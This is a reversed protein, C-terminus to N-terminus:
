MEADSDSHNSEKEHDTLHSHIPTDSESQMSYGSYESDTMISYQEMIREATTHHFSETILASRILRSKKILKNLELDEKIWADNQKKLKSIQKQYRRKIKQKEEDYEGKFKVLQQRKFRKHIIRQTEAQVVKSIKIEEIRRLEETKLYPLTKIFIMPRLRQTM